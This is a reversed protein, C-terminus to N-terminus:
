PWLWGFAGATVLSYLVGDLLNKATTSWPVGRWISDVVPGLGYAMFAATGTLRFVTLYEEGATLFRSALYAVFVGILLTYLFWQVLAKGMSPPGSPFVTLIAVPGRQFKEQMEPTGVDKVSACHPLHYQGPSPDSGRLADAVADENPLGRFDTAHYRLVMHVLSSVVFVFLAAVLIPMWLSLIPIM